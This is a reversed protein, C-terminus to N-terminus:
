NNDKKIFNWASAPAAVPYSQNIQNLKKAGGSILKALEDIGNGSSYLGRAAVQNGYLRLGKNAAGAAAGTLAAVPGGASAKALAATGAAYYDSPSVSRNVADGLARGHAIDEAKSLGAYAKKTAKFNEVWGGPMKSGVNNVAADGAQEISERLANSLERHVLNQTSLPGQFQPNHGWNALRPDDAHQKLMQADEVSLLPDGGNLISNLTSEIEANSAQVSPLRSSKVLKSKVADAITRMDVGVHPTQMEVVGDPGVGMEASRATQDKVAQDLQKLQEGFKEGVLKRKATLEEAMTDSNKPIASIADSELAQRGVNRAMEKNQLLAKYDKKYPRLADVAKSYSAEKLQSALTPLESAATLGGGLAGGFLAGRGANNLRDGVQLPDVVGKTDGPNNAAGYGAGVLANKAASIGVKGFYGANKALNALEASEGIPIRGTAVVSGGIGLLKGLDASKPNEKNMDQERQINEDRLQVYEKGSNMSQPLLIDAAKRTLAQTQPLHGLTMINGYNELGTQLKEPTSTESGENNKFYKRVASYIPDRSFEEDQAPVGAANVNKEALYAKPDFAPASIQATKEALYAKPDFTDAM